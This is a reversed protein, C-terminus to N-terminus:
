QRGPREASAPAFRQRFQVPSMGTVRKFSARFTVTSRFGCAFGIQDVAATTAELMEQARRIRISLLWQMPSQGVQQEFRRAFTRESMNVQAAMDAVSMPQHAQEALRELHPALTGHSRPPEHRIYQAQGGERSLPAVALRAAHAALAPGHDHRVLHLCMDLGATAGASTVIAGEDVFLVNPDVDTDPFRNALEAALLWHTTARRGRLLGAQGLVFAGSCISAIRAGRIGASRLANEVNPSAPRAVDEIGPMIITDANELMDLGFPASLTFHTTSVSGTEGCIRVDYASNGAADRLRGFVECAITLDYPIVAEPAVIGVIHRKM